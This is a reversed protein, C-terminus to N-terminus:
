KGYHVKAKNVCAEKADGSLADCKEKAVAYDADRKDAAAEQRAESKEEKAKVRAASSEQRATANAKSTKLLAKADSKASVLAAKAEKVCVDKVNGAKDDCKEKAVAYDAKAKVVSVEYGAKKSPKYRAELEAKAVKEKGKAVAMCIDKDNDAFLGCKIQDSNHENVISKGASKYEMESMNQAIVGSSFALSSIALFASIHQKNM